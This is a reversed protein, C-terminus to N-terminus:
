HVLTLEGNVYHRCEGDARLEFHGHVSEGNPDQKDEHKPVASLGMFGHGILPAGGGVFAPYNGEVNDNDLSTIGRLFDSIGLSDHMISAPGFSSTHRLGIFHGLEHLIVTPLDYDSNSFKDTSFNHDDYNVIIDAHRLEIYENATGGFHRIGAFQTIALAGSSVTSFWSYKKYIGMESDYYSQPSSYVRNPVQAMPIVFFDKAPFVGNWSMAMQEVINRGSGDFDAGTFDGLFDTSLKLNLPSSLVSAEWRMPANPNAPASGGSSSTSSKPKPVCATLALTTLLLTLLTKM